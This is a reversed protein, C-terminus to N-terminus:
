VAITPFHRLGQRVGPQQTWLEGAEWRALITALQFRKLFDRFMAAGTDHPGVPGVTSVPTLSVDHPRRLDVLEFNRVPIHRNHTLQPYTGEKLLRQMDWEFATLWKLAVKFGVGKVGLIGDSADGALAMLLPLREPPCGYVQEVREATWTEGNAGPRVQTTQDDLLQLFDKDSSLIVVEAGAPRNQCYAAILDDAEVGPNRAQTIGAAALFEEALAFPSGWEDAGGHELRAGKYEPFLVVRRACRGGDWCVVTRDPRVERFYRALSTAFVHLAATSIGGVSMTVTETAKVARVLLNNSDVILMRSVALHLMSKGALRLYGHSARGLPSGESRGVDAV